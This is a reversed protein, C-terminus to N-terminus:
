ASVELLQVFIGDPDTTVIGRFKGGFSQPEDSLFVVGKERLMAITGDLDSVRFAIRNLGLHNLVPYPEGTPKPQVWQVLDIFMTGAGTSRRRSGKAEFRASGSSSASASCRTSGFAANSVRCTICVHQFDEIM